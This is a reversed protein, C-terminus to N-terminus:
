AAVGGKGTSVEKWNRIREFTKPATFVRNIITGYLDGDSPALVSDLMEDGPYVHDFLSIMHRKVAGCLRIVESKIMDEQDVSLYDNERFTGM